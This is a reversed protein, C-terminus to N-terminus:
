EGKTIYAVIGINKRDIHIGFAILRKKFNIKNVPKFGDEICFTRYDSYMDKILTYDDKSKTYLYEDIFLRVSDSQKKYEELQSDISDSHSFNKQILLRNLGELIWNFIGSLEDKIIKKALQKDQEEEPITVKFPIILFRRFYANTHEVDKPLSNCNFILKAYHILNFPNGFPLRAGVPEGSVLQKFISAELNGNIESGYNVLKNALMARYYGSVDTLSQLSYNSINEQGLLANVIEFIVSKGNAGEGYLLLTKELKLVGPQIFIYGLYEALINQLNKDPLVRNLFVEFMPATATKNYDFPLQYTMFDQRRFERLQNGQQSIEFTGNKLNIFVAEKPLEPKPLYAASMFQKYLQDRFSYYRADYMDIGMREAAEGLFGKLEEPEVLSWYAGNYLYIFFNNKCIGWDNEAALEQITEVVIILYHKNKLKDEGRLNVQSEFDILDVKEILASLIEKHTRPENKRVLGSIHSQFFQPTIINKPNETSGSGSLGQDDNETVSNNDYDNPIM